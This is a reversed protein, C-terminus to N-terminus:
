ERCPYTNGWSPKSCKPYKKNEEIDPVVIPNPSNIGCNCGSGGRIAYSVFYKENTSWKWCEKLKLYPM